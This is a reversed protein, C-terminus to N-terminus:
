ANVEQWYSDSGRDGEVWDFTRRKGDENVMAQRESNSMGM